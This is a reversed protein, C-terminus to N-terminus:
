RNLGYYLVGGTLLVVSTDAGAMSTVLVVVVRLYMFVRVTM